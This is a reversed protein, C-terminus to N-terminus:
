NLRRLASVGGVVAGVAAGRGGGLAGGIVGGTVGGIIAGGLIRGRRSLSEDTDGSMILDSVKPSLFRTLRSYRGLQSM